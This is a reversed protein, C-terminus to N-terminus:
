AHPREMKTFSFTKVLSQIIDIAQEIAGNLQPSLAIEGVESAQLTFPECGVLRVYQCKKGLLQLWGFVDTPIFGHPELPTQVGPHLTFDSLDPEILYVTGPSGGRQVVDVLIVADYPEMLEFAFDVGRIGFDIVKVNKPLSYKALARVVAVGFLDDGLFINGLGAILIKPPEPFSNM